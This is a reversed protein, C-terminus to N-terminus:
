DRRPTPRTAGYYKALDAPMVHAASRNFVATTRELAAAVLGSCIQHGEVQFSFKAGTLLTLAISVIDAFDYPDGLCSRAFNVAERRDAASAKVRVLHYDSDLYKSINTEQVGNGLAEILSGRDDVILAAHNWYTFWQADRGHIRLAQGWRILADQWSQGHTLLFDAPRLQAHPEGKAHFLVEDVPAPRFKLWTCELGSAKGAPACTGGPM